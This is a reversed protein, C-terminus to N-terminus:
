WWVTHPMPFNTIVPAGMSSPPEAAFSYLPDDVRGRFGGVNEYDRLPGRAQKRAKVMSSAQAAKAGYGPKAPREAAAAFTSAAFTLAVVAISHRFLAALFGPM